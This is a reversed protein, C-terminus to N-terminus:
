QHSMALYVKRLIMGSECNRCRYVVHCLAIKSEIYLDTSVIIEDEESVLKGALTGLYKGRLGTHRYLLFVNQASGIVFVSLTNEILNKSTPDLVQVCVTCVSARGEKCV